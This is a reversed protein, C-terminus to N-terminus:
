RRGESVVLNVRGGRRLVAGWAPSQTIVVGRPYRSFAYRIRGVRCSSRTLLRKAGALAYGYLDPVACRGLANVLVSVTGSFNNATVVDPKRDGTVDAIASSVPECGDYNETSFSL